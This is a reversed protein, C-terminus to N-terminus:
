KKASGLPIAVTAFLAYGETRNQAGWENYGRLNLSAPQGDVEFMYGLEPGAAYVRSKFDGLARSRLAGAAGDTPYHDASLQNYAYGVVGVQWRKSLFQSVAWDFHLDNGNRYHTDPNEWNYTFGLVGSFELGTKDNFYTYGGGADIAAHGIGINALRQSNYAGVPVGGQTYVMWNHVGSNWSLSAYPYLDSGGTQGQSQSTQKNLNAFSTSASVDTNNRAVGFSVGIYPQGGLVKGEATYGPQVSLQSLRSSLEGSVLANAKSFSGKASGNYYYPLVALSWGADTPVAALSAFQGSTWFPVGGEDAHAVHSVLALLAGARATAMINQVRVIRM